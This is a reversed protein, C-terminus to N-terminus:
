YIIWTLTLKHDCMESSEITFIRANISFCFTFLKIFWFTRSLLIQCSEKSRRLEWCGAQYDSAVQMNTTLNQGPTLYITYLLSQSLRFFWMGNQLITNPPVWTVVLMEHGIREWWQSNVWHLQVGKLTTVKVTRWCVARIRIRLTRM